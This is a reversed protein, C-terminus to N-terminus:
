FGKEKHKQGDNCQDKRFINTESAQFRSIFFKILFFQSVSVPTTSTTPTAMASGQRLRRFTSVWPAMKLTSFLALRASVSTRGLCSKVFIAAGVM